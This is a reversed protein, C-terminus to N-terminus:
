LLPKKKKLLADINRKKLQSFLKQRLSKSSSSELYSKVLNVKKLPQNRPATNNLVIFTTGDAFVIKKTFEMSQSKTIVTQYEKLIKSTQKLHREVRFKTTPKEINLKPLSHAKPVLPKKLFYNKTTIDRMVRFSGGIGKKRLFTAIDLKGQIKPHIIRPKNKKTFEKSVYDTKFRELIALDFNFLQGINEKEEIKETRMLEETKIRANKIEEALEQISRRTPNHRSSFNM